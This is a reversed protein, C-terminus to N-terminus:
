SKLERRANRDGVAVGMLFATTIAEFLGESTNNLDDKTENFIDIIQCIESVKLDTQEHKKMIKQGQEAQKRVDRM